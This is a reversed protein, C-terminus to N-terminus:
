KLRFKALYVGQLYQYLGDGTAVFYGNATAKLDCVEATYGGVRDMFIVKGSSDLKALFFGEDRVQVLGFGAALFGGDETVVVTNFGVSVNESLTRTWLTDGESDTRILYASSKDNDSAFRYGAIIFGGDTTEAVDLGREDNPGGYTHSWELEGAVDTKVLYVDGPSGGPAAHGSTGAMIYGGDDTQAVSWFNDPLPGGYIHQWLLNGNADSKALCADSNSVGAMVLGGDSSETLALATGKIERYVRTWLTDGATDTKVLFIEGDPLDAFSVTYGAIVYGGDTSEVVGWGHEFLEGGFTRTWITDGNSDYKLLFMDDYGAGFTRTVGGVLYGGDSTSQVSQGCEEMSGADGVVISEFSFEVPPAPATSKTPEADDCGTLAIAGVTIVLLLVNRM